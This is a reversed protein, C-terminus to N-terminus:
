IITRHVRPDRIADARVMSGHALIVDRLNAIQRAEFHLWELYAPVGGVIAYTAVLEEATFHPLFAPLSGFALPWLLWQVTM